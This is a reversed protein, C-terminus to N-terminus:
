ACHGCVIRIRMYTVYKDRTCIRTYMYVGMRSYHMGYPPPPPPRKLASQSGRPPTGSFGSITFPQGGGRGAFYVGRDGSLRSRTM